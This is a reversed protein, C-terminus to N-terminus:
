FWTKAPEVAVKTNFQGHHSYTITTTTTSIWVKIIWQINKCTQPLKENVDDDDNNENFNYDYWTVSLQYQNFLFFLFFFYRDWIDVIYHQHRHRHMGPQKKKNNNNNWKSCISLVHMCVCVDFLQFFWSFKKGNGFMKEIEIIILFTFFFWFFFEKRTM